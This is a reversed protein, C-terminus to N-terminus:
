AITPANAFAKSSVKFLGFKSNKLETTITGSIRPKNARRFRSNLHLFTIVPQPQEMHYLM